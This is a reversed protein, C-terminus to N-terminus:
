GSRTASRRPREEQNHRNEQQQDGSENTIAQKKEVEIPITRSNSEIPENLPLDILLRNGDTLKSKIEDVKVDQPLRFWRKFHSKRYSDEGSSEHEAEVVLHDDVLKIKLDEPKYDAMDLALQLGGSETRKVLAEPEHRRLRKAPGDFHRSAWDELNELDEVMDQVRNLANAMQRGMDDMVALPEYAPLTRRMKRAPWEDLFEDELRRVLRSVPRPDRIFSRLLLSM